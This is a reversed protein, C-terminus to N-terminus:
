PKGLRDVLHIHSVVVETLRPAIALTSDSYSAAQLPGTRPVLKLVHNMGEIIELSSEMRAAYLMRAEDTAVQVDTTGQVILIPMTLRSLEVTPQYKFWSILYPQVSPRFLAALEVPPSPYLQGAELSRLVSDSAAYLAAPLATKLQDRLVEPASRGLGAISIFGNAQAHRAAIMGILSGESHGIVTISSFRQNGRLSSIWKAADGVYTDFRLNEESMGPM